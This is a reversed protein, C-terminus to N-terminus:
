LYHLAIRKRSLVLVGNLHYATFFNIFIELLFWIDFALEMFKGIGESINVEFSVVFPVYLAIVFILAFSVFDISSRICSDPYLLLKIKMRELNISRIM